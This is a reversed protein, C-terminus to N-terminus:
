RLDPGSVPLLSRIDMAILQLKDLDLFNLRAHRAICAYYGICLVEVNFHLTTNM